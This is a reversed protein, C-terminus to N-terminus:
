VGSRLFERAVHRCYLLMVGLHNAHLLDLAVSTNTDLGSTATLCCAGACVCRRSRPGRSSIRFFAGVDPLDSCLELRDGAKLKLQSSRRRWAVIRLKKTASITACCFVCDDWTVLQFALDRASSLGTVQSKSAVQAKRRAHELLNPASQTPTLCFHRGMTSTCPSVGDVPLTPVVGCVCVCNLVHAVGSLRM